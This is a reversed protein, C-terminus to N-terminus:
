YTQPFIAWHGYFNGLAWLLQVFIAVSTKVLFIFSKQEIKFNELFECFNPIQAYFNDGCANFVQRFTSLDGLRTVSITPLTHRGLYKIPNKQAKSSSIAWTTFETPLGLFM